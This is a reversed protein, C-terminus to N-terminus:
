RSRDLPVAANALRKLHGLAEYSGSPASMNDCGMQLNNDYSNLSQGYALNGISHAGALGWMGLDPHRLGHSLALFGSLLVEHGVPTRKGSM